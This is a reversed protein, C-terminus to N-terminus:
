FMPHCESLPEDMAKHAYLQARTNAALVQSVEVLDVIVLIELITCDLDPLM